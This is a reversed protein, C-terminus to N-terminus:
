RQSLIIEKVEQLDKVGALSPYADQFYVLGDETEIFLWREGDPLGYDALDLLALRQGGEEYISTEDYKIPMFIGRTGETIRSSVGTDEVWINTGIPAPLLLTVRDGAELTGRLVEGVEITAIARYDTHGGFEFSINRIKKVTGAFAVVEHGLIHPAFLEDETLWMLDAMNALRAGAPLCDIYNVKVGRSLKLEFDGGNRNLFPLAIALALVLCAAIPALWKWSQFRNVVAIGGKQARGARNHALVAGLMREDAVRNPGIKNWSDIIKKNKM